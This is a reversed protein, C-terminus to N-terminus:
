NETETILWNLKNLMDEWYQRELFTLAHLRNDLELLVETQTLSDKINSVPFQNGNLDSIYITKKKM